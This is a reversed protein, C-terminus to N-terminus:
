SGTIGKLKQIVGRARRSDFRFVNFSQISAMGFQCRLLGAILPAM